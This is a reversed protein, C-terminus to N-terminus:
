FHNTFVPDSDSVISCPLGHLRVINDFFARTVSAASYPHSLPIFHGYKSFRDVVTLILSKGGVKPFGELFDMSIDSWVGAPVPLPAAFRTSTFTRACLGRVYDKVKQTAKPSYFLGRWRNLSKEMGEHGGNHVAALSHPWASSVDPVFVKSRFLLLGDVEAWGDLVTGAAIHNRLEIVQPDTTAEERLTNFIEFTPASISLLSAAEDRRSLADAAGNLKGSRYEVSFDYGFLKSVWTHQPITSLRQDLIFKLNYHDTRVKFQHGWLYPRWYRVAKVLGILEREYAPLKKHQPAVARSFYAIAGDGQLVFGFGLGSADCDVVFSQTFDPMQLLPATMLAQKLMSFAVDADDTWTFSERKLLATLPAAIEWVWRGAIFKRYCGTLGLFGRLARLTRSRPWAEVAAIKSNDMTMGAASITHGLYSVSGVGFLCKSRKLALCQERLTQLVKKVHQLHSSWSGSYILIDDFFVLLFKRIFLKLVDNMLSQFTSPADTLGFPMFLFEFHGKHTRFATKAVDESHM